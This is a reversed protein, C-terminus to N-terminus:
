SRSVVIDLNAGLRLLGRLVDPRALSGVAFGALVTLTPVVVMVREPAPYPDILPCTSLLYAATLPIVWFEAPPGRRWALLLGALALTPFHWRLWGPLLGTDFALTRLFRAVSGRAAWLYAFPRHMATDLGLAAVERLARAYTMKHRSSLRLAAVSGVSHHDYENEALAERYVSRALAHQPRSFDILPGSIQLSTIAGTPSLTFSGYVLLNRAMWGAVLLWHPALYGALRGPSARRAALLCALPIPWFLAYEPRCLSALGSLLGAALPRGLGAGRERIMAAASLLVAGQLFNGLPESIITGEWLLFTHNVSLLAGIWFTIWPDDWLRQALRMLMAATLLGLLHQLLTAAELGGPALRLVAALFLPYVPPRRFTEPHSLEHRELFEVAPQLYSLSGPFVYPTSRTWVLLRFHLGILLALYPWHRGALTKFGASM